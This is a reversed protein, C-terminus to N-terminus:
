SVMEYFLQYRGVPSASFERCIAVSSIDADQRGSLGYREICLVVSSIDADQYNM